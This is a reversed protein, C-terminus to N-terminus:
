AAAIKELAVASLRRSAPQAARGNDLISLVLLAKNVGDLHRELRTKQAKLCVVLATLNM